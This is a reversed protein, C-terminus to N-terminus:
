APCQGELQDNRPRVSAKLTREVSPDTVSKGTLSITFHRVTMTPCNPTGVACVVTCLSGLAIDTPVTTISFNTVTVQNIDTMDALGEKETQMKLIGGQLQFGFQENDALADDETADRSFQYAVEGSVDDDTSSVGRYPNATTATGSGTITTGKISNGWYGSRRLDRSVLDMAARLDQNLRAEALLRHSSAANTAYLSVTGAVVFLGITTGIMLEILSLGRQRRRGSSIPHRPRLM